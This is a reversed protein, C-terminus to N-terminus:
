GARLAQAPQARAARLAPGLTAAFAGFMLVATSVVLVRADTPEVGFAFRTMAHGLLLSIGIGIAAGIAAMRLGARLVMVLVSAPRAGLAMRISMERLRQSIAYATVGYIGTMALIMAIAAFGALLGTRVRPASISDHLLADITSIEQLPIRPDVAAVETRIRLVLEVPAGSTRVVLYMTRWWANQAYPVYVTPEASTDLGQYKVNAAVGVIEYRPSAADPGGLQLHEGIATAGPFFRRALEENVIAVLPADAHDAATFARGGHLQIGMTRFYDASVLLQEVAPVDVGPTPPRGAPQAPNTMVLRDPPVAM